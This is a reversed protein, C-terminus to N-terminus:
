KASKVPETSLEMYYALSGMMIVGLLWWVIQWTWISPIGFLWTTSDNPDGFFWNGIVAGPGIAFIFWIITFVLILPKWLKKSEPLSAYQRLFKHYKMRHELDKETQTLFSFLIAVFINTAIGWGASHITLPYHGYWPLITIKQTLIKDTLIVTIIGAVIGWTVGQKTLWPWWCIAILAPLMQLGFAVALGGLNAVAIIGELTFAMFIAIGVIVFAIVTAWKIPQTNDDRRKFVDRTWIASTTLIYSSATSQMAALACIALVGAMIIAGISKQLEKSIMLEALSTVSYTLEKLETYSSRPIGSILRPVLKDGTDTSQLPQVITKLSIDSHLVLDNNAGLLHSGIGQLTTFFFMILGMVLASAIVQQFAFPKPTKAAFAWMSFAPSSQIGMLALMFTLIYFGTWQGDQDSFWKESIAIYHSYEETGVRQYDFAVLQSIGHNFKGVGVQLWVIIGIAAIGMVLLFLQMADVKAVAKLGGIAVYLALILALLIMSIDAITTEWDTTEFVEGIVGGFIFGSAKLQVALYTISFLSAVLVVLYRMFKSQFYEDFMEAPTVFNYRNGLLWQRKLFLVGTLPITIAYFSAYGAPFGDKFIVGPHSIFTWGSFCTATTAFVFNWFSLSRGALFYDTATRNLRWGRFGWIICYLWYLFILVVLIIISFGNFLVLGSDINDKSM